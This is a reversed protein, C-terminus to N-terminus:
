DNDENKWGEAMAKEEVLEEVEERTAKMLLQRLLQTEMGIARIFGEVSKIKQESEEIKSSIIDYWYNFVNQASETYIDTGDVDIWMESENNILGKEGDRGGERERECM